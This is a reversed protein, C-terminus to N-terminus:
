KNGGGPPARVPEEARDAHGGHRSRQRAGAREGRLLGGRRHRRRHAAQVGQLRANAKKEDGHYRVISFETEVAGPDISSVRIKTGVLDISMAQTLARVAFKSANYVNGGPYVIHGAVSGINVIHGENRKVMLPVIFRSVNLLGTVNTEIM